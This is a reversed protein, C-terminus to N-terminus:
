HCTNRERHIDRQIRKRCREGCYSSDRRKPSFLEGCSACKIFNQRDLRAKDALYMAVVGQLGRPHVVTMRKSFDVAVRTHEALLRNLWRQLLVCYWADDSGFGERRTAVDLGLVPSADYPDPIEHVPELRALVELEEMSLTQNQSAGEVVMTGVIVMERLEVWAAVPEACRDAASYLPSRTTLGILGFREALRLYDPVSRAQVLGSIFETPNLKRLVHTFSLADVSMREQIVSCGDTLEYGDKAVYIFAPGCLHLNDFIHGRQGVEAM